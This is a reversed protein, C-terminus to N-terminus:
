FLQTKPHHHHHKPTSIIKNNTTTHKHNLVMYIYVWYFLALLSCTRLIYWIGNYCCYYCLVLFFSYYNKCRLIFDFRFVVLLLYLFLYYYCLHFNIPNTQSNTPPHKPFLYQYYKINVM